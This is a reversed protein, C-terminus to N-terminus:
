CNSVTGGGGQWFIGSTRLKDFPRGRKEGGALALEPAKPGTRPVSRCGFQSSEAFNLLPLAHGTVSSANGAIRYSDGYNGYNVKSSETVEM